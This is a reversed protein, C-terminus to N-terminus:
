PSARTLEHLFVDFQHDSQLDVHGARLARLDHTCVVLDPHSELLNCWTAFTDPNRVTTAIFARSKSGLAALITDLLDPLLQPDFVVDAAVVWDYGEPRALHAPMPNRWDISACTPRPEPQLTWNLDANRTLNALVAEHYDTLVVCPQADKPHWQKNLTGALLLGVVGTGAGLELISSPGTPCTRAPSSCLTDCLHNALMVAADWTRLGTTGQQTLATCEHLTISTGAAARDKSPAPCHRFTRFQFGPEAPKTSEGDSLLNYWGEDPEALTGEIRKLLRSRYAAAAPYYQWVDQVARVVAAQDRASEETAEQCWDAPLDLRLVPVAALIQLALSHTTEAIRGAGHGDGGSELGQGSSAM